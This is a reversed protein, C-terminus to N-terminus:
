RQAVWAALRDGPMARAWLWGQGCQVGVEALRVAVAEDEVGEAVVERGLAHALQVVARVVDADRQDTAIDRLFARDIKLQQVPFSRLYALSCYGTGFDDIAISVGGQALADIVARARADALWSETIEVTLLDHHQAFLGLLAASARADIVGVLSLNVACRVALGQERWQQVQAVATRTVWETLPVILGTQEALAIFEEPPLPGRSPHDWRCLAEVSRIEGTRLSIIPQYALDLRGSTIAARLEQTLTLREGQAADLTADYLSWGARNAKARYMAVDAHRLLTSADRGHTPAVVVGISTSLPVELGPLQFPEHMASVVADAVGMVELQTAPAAVCIAFEDGGLRSVLDGPRITAELRAALQQLVADGAAHGLSDNVDKFSDLDCLLLGVASGARRSVTLAAELRERLLHRNPLGTLDDHTAQHQMRREADNRGLAMTVVHAVQQLFHVDAQGFVRGATDSTVIAGWHEGARGVPVALATRLDRWGPDTAEPGLPQSRYDLQIVPRGTVTAEWSIPATTGAIVVGAEALTTDLSWVWRVLLSEQGVVRELVACHSVDLLRAVGEVCAELLGEVSSDGLAIQGLEAVLGQQDSRLRLDTVDRATCYVLGETHEQAHVTHGWTLWRWGGDAHRYRNTVQEPGAPVGALRDRFLRTSTAVDDPHVFASFPRDVLQELPYGLVSTWSISLRRFRGAQDLICLLDSSVDVFRQLDQSDLPVVVVAVAEM